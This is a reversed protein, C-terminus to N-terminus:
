NLVVIRPFYMYRVLGQLSRKEILTIFFKKHTIIIFLSSLVTWYHLINLQSDYTCLHKNNKKSKFNIWLIYDRVTLKKEGWKMNHIDTDFSFWVLMSKRFFDFGLFDKFWLIIYKVNILLQIATNIVFVKILWLLCQPNNKM